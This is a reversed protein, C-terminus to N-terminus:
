GNSELLAAYLASKVRAAVVETDFSNFVLDWIACETIYENHWMTIITHLDVDDHRISFEFPSNRLAAQMEKVVPLM